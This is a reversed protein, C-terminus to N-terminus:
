QTLAVFWFSSIKRNSFPFPLSEAFFIVTSIIEGQEVVKHGGGGGGM